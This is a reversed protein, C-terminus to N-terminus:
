LSWVNIYIFPDTVGIVISLFHLSYIDFHIIVYNICPSGLHSLPLSNAQLATSGPQIGPRFSGRSSHMAIWELIIAQLIGHVSPGPLSYNMPDCPTVHSLM